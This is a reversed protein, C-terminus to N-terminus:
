ALSYGGRKMADAVITSVPELQRAYQRWRGISRDNLPARVQAYSPTPSVAARKHFRLQAAELPLGTAAMLRQTEAVQDAVLSEYRM